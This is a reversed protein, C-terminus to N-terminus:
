RDAAPARAWPPLSAARRAAARGSAAARPPGAPSLCAAARSPHGSWAQPAPAAALRPAGEQPLARRRAPSSARVVPGTPPSAWLEEPPVGSPKERAEEQAQETARQILAGAEAKSEDEIRRLLVERAQEASMGALQLLRQRQENLVGTVQEDKAAVQRERQTVRKEMEDLNREKVSLIDLKKDLTDERKDLRAEHEQLKRRAAETEREFEQKLKLQEQQAALQIERAKTTAELRATERIQDADLRAQALASRGAFHIFAFVGGGGLVVGVFLWLIEM